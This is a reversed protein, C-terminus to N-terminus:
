SQLFFLLVYRLATSFKMETRRPHRKFIKLNKFKRFRRVEDYFWASDCGSISSSLSKYKLSTAVSPKLRTKVKRTELVCPLFQDILYVATAKQREVMM